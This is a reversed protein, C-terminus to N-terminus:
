RRLHVEEGEIETKLGLSAAAARAFSVPDNATFLGTIEQRALTPDDIVIQISSYRAFAAAATELPESEFAIRGERWAFERNVTEQAMVAAKPQAKANDLPLVVRMNASVRVAPATQSQKVAVLGESVLVQVPMGELHRVSFSTGLARISTEGAAVIFPRAGDKAVEFWAEGQILRVRRTSGDFDVKVDSATNLTMVSGDQLSVVRVEGRRTDYKQGTMMLPLAIVIALCAAAAALWVLKRRQARPEAPIVFQDPNFEPGLARARETHLAIARMRMFAGRHRSDRGLWSELAQDDEASLPGRDVRAAWDAATIDIKQGTQSM